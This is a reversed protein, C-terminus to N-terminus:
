YESFIGLKLGARRFTKKAFKYISVGKRFIRLIIRGIKAPIRFLYLSLYKEPLARDVLIEPIKQFMVKKSNMYKGTLVREGESESIKGAYLKVLFEPAVKASHINKFASQGIKRIGELQEPNNIVEELKQVINDRNVNLVPCQTYNRLVSENFFCAVPKGLSWGELTLVGPAGILLQDIVLDARSIVTLVEEHPINQLKRYEIELGKEQLIRIAEDVYITGKVNANSPAHVIVFRGTKETKPSTSRLEPFFRPTLIYRNLLQGLENDGVCFKVEDLSLLNSLKKRYSDINQHKLFPWDTYNFVPNSIGATSVLPLRLDFGTFRHFVQIGNKLYQEYEYVLSSHGIYPSLIGTQWFHVAHPKSELIQNFLKTRTKLSVDLIQDNKYKFKNSPYNFCSAEFGAKKAAEMYIIPQGAFLKTGYIIDQKKM